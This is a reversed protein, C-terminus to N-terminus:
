YLFVFSNLISSLTIHVMLLVRPIPAVSYVSSVHNTEPILTFVRCLPSSSSSLLLLLLLLRWWLPACSANLNRQTRLMQQPNRWLFSLDHYPTKHRPKEKLHNLMKCEALVLGVKCVSHCQWDRHCEWMPTERVAVLRCSLCPVSNLKVSAHITHLM